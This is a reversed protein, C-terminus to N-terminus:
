LKIYYWWNCDHHQTIYSYQNYFTIEINYLQKHLSPINHYPSPTLVQLYIFQTFWVLRTIYNIELSELFERAVQWQNNMNQASVQCSGVM